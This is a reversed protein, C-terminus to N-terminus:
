VRPPWMWQGQGNGETASTAWLVDTGDLFVQLNVSPGGWTRVVMAPYVEGARPTNGRNGGVAGAPRHALIMDVDYTSLMYHVIRGIGPMGAGVRPIDGGTALVPVAKKAADGLDNLSAEEPSTTMPEVSGSEEWAELLEEYVIWRPDNHGERAQLLLGPM